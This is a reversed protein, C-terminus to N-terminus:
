GEDDEQGEAEEDDAWRIAGYNPDPDDVTGGRRNRGTGNEDDRQQYDDDSPARGAGDSKGSPQPPAKRQDERQIDAIDTPIAGAVDEIFTRSAGFEGSKQRFEDRELLAAAKSRRQFSLEPFTKRMERLFQNRQRLSDKLTQSENFGKTMMRRYERHETRTLAMAYDRDVAELRCHRAGKTDILDIYGLDHDYVVATVTIKVTADIRDAHPTASHYQDLIAQLGKANGRYRIHEYVAGDPTVTLEVTRGLEMEVDAPPIFRTPSVKMAARLAQIPSRNGLSAKPENNWARRALEVAYAFKARSIEAESVPDYRPDRGPHNPIVTGPLVSLRRHLFSHFLEHTAKADSHYPKPLEVTSVLNVLGPISGPPILAKDNDPHLTEPIAACDSGARDTPDDDLPEMPCMIGMLAGRAMEPCFPGSFTTGPFAYTTAADMGFVSKMRASAEDWADSFVTIQRHVVGDLTVREFPRLVEVPEGNAGSFRDAQKRNNRTEITLPTELKSIRKRMAEYTPCSIHEPIKGADQLEEFTGLMSAAADFLTPHEGVWYCAAEQHVIANVLPHLQSQGELRGSCSVLMGIRRRPDEELQSMWNILSRESVPIAPLSSKNREIFSKVRGRSRLLGANLAANAWLFRREARKDASISVAYPVKLNVGRRGGISKLPQDADVLRGTIAEDLLWDIDPHVSNRGAGDAILFQKGDEYRLDLLWQGLYGHHILPEGQHLLRMGSHLGLPHRRGMVEVGM